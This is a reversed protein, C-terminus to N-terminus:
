SGDWGEMLEWEMRGDVGIGDKWSSGNWKKMLECGTRGDVGM